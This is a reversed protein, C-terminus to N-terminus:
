TTMSLYHESIEAPTLEHNYIALKGLLAHNGSSEVGSGAKLWLRPNPSTVNRTASNTNSATGQSVNNKYATINKTSTGGSVWSTCDCNFVLHQWVNGNTLSVSKTVIAADGDHYVRFTATWSSNDVDFSWEWDGAADNGLAILWTATATSVNGPSIWLELAWGSTGWPQKFFRSPDTYYAAGNAMLKTCPDGNPLNAIGSPTTFSADSPMMLNRSGIDDIFQASPM